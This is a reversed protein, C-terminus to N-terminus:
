KKNYLVAKVEKFNLFNLDNLFNMNNYTILLRKSCEDRERDPWDTRFAARGRRDAAGAGSLQHVSVGQGINEELFRRIAQEPM